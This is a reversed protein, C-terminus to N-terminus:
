KNFNPNHPGFNAPNKAECESWDLPKLKNVVPEPNLLEKAAKAKQLESLIGQEKIKTM